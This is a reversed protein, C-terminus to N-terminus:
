VTIIFYSVLKYRFINDDNYQVFNKKFHTLETEKKEKNDNIDISNKMSKLTDKSHNLDEILTKIRSIYISKENDLDSLIKESSTM